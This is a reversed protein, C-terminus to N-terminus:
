QFEGPVAEYMEAAVEEASRFRALDLEFDPRDPAQLKEVLERIERPSLGAQKMADKTVSAGVRAVLRDASAEVVRSLVDREARTLPRSELDYDVWAEYSLPAVRKVMGAIARAFEQIEWQARPDVRLSLFHLLNHLDIKWYWQTYMSVPLDIRAIERAVDEELM